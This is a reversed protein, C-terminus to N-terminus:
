KLAQLWDDSIKHRTTTEPESLHLKACNSCLASPTGKKHSLRFGKYSRDRWIRWLPRENINGFSLGHYRGALDDLTSEPLSVPLNTFVCPSVRGDAAIFLSKLVKETCTGHTTRLSPVRFHVNAGVKASAKAVSSFLEYIHKEESEDQPVLVEKQLDPSPVFDLTNLVVQGVGLGELLAPLNMVDELQSRLVTYAMHVTPLSSRRLQKMRNLSEIACLVEKLSTGRRIADQDETTGALSVGVIDIGEHVMREATEDKLLIGNTTTGICCGRQKAMRVMKFFHPHLLPEGWGQLFVLGSGRLYPILREFTGMGMHRSNWFDRYITNPCYVCSANCHSTVEVQIWDLSPALIHLLFDMMVMDLRYIKPKEGYEEGHPIELDAGFAQPSHDPFRTM